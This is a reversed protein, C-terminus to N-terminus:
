SARCKDQDGGRSADIWPWLCCTRLPPSEEPLTSREIGRLKQTLSYAPPSLPSSSFYRHHISSPLVAGTNCGSHQRAAHQGIGRRLNNFHRVRLRGSQGTGYQGGDRAPWAAVPRYPRGCGARHTHGPPFSWTGRFTTPRRRESSPDM